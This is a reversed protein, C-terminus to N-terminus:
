KRYMCCMRLAHQMGNETTTNEIHATGVGTANCVQNDGLLVFVGSVARYDTLWERKHTIHRSAGSDTVWVGAMPTQLILAEEQGKPCGQASDVEENTVTFATEQTGNAETEAVKTKEAKRKRCNRAYHGIKKYHYCQVTKKEKKKKNAIADSTQKGSQITLAALADAAEENATLRLEEKILRETLNTITQHAVAVSDWATVLPNYKSPLGDLIKAMIAVDLVPEDLDRLANAMNKVKAM